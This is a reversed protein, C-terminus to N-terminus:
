TGGATDPEVSAASKSAKESTHRTGSATTRRWLDRECNVIPGVEVSWSVKSRIKPDAAEEMGSDVEMATGMTAGGRSTALSDKQRKKTLGKVTKEFMSDMNEMRRGWLKKDRGTSGQQNDRSAARALKRLAEEGHRGDETARERIKRTDSERETFVATATYTHRSPFDPFHKPVYSRTARDDEGSLSDLFSLKRPGGDEPPPSPLLTPVPQIPPLSKLYPHLDDLYLHSRKLAHEFDQPIPQLRRSAVMSQRVYTSFRLLDLANMLITLHWCSRM